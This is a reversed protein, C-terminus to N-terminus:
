RNLARPEVWPTAASPNATLFAATRALICSEVAPYTRSHVCQSRLWDPMLAWQRGLSRVVEQFEESSCQRNYACQTGPSNTILPPAIRSSAPPAVATPAEHVAIGLASRIKADTAPDADYWVHLVHGFDWFQYSTPKCESWIMRFLHLDSPSVELRAGRHAGRPDSLAGALQVDLAGAYECIQTANTNVCSGAACADMAQLNAAIAAKVQDVSHLSDVFEQLGDEDEAHAALCISVMLLVIALSARVSPM